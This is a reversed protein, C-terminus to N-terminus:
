RLVINQRGKGLLTYFQLERSCMIINHMGQVCVVAYCQLRRKVSNHVMFILSKVFRVQTSKSCSCQTFNIPQAHGIFCNKTSTANHFMQFLSFVTKPMKMASVLWESSKFRWIQHNQALSPHVFRIRAHMIICNPYGHHYGHMDISTYSTM